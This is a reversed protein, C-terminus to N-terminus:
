NTETAQLFRTLYEDLLRRYEHQRIDEKLNILTNLFYEYQTSIEPSVQSLFEENVAGARGGVDEIQHRVMQAIVRANNAMIGANIWGDRLPDDTEEPEGKVWDQFFRIIQDESVLGGRMLKVAIDDAYLDEINNLIESIVRQQYEYPLAQEGLSNVAADLTSASHSPHHTRMRFIHCMEHLILGELMGSEIANGSITIRFGRGQPKTYGMFSLTPDV